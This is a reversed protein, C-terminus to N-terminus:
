SLNEPMSFPDETSPYLVGAAETRFHSATTAWISSFLTWLIQDIRKENEPTQQRNCSSIYNLFLFYNSKM